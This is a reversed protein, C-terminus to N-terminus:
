EWQEAEPKRQKKKNNISHITIRKQQEMMELKRTKNRNRLERNKRKENRWSSGIMRPAAVTWINEKRNRM